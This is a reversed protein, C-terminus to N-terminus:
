NNIQSKVKALIDQNIKVEYKGELEKLWNKEVLDQYDSIVIGKTEELTKSAEPLVKNVKIIHYADNYFYIKSIGEKFIFTKPLAQHTATMIGSTFIVKQTNDQNLKNKIEEIKNGNNLMQQVKKIDKEKASTAVVADIRQEWKYNDKNADYYNQIGATDKKVANWIKTEMLDFLMLGERYENLIQAFEINENELNQEHYALINKNVFVKYKEDVIEQFSQNRKAEKQRKYLLNAFDNYTLLTDGIKLLPKEKAIDSPIRWARDYYNDNLISVFYSRAPNISSVNYQKKLKNQLSTNILKSRADLRVKNELDYKMDEFSAIPKKNYLKIIHWGYDSKFPKSVEGIKNLSFAVDEFASSSLQGSTFPALKGGKKASSKDDSFQKALSEFNEGQQILKYIEQIRVEPKVLTDKQNNSIMIHGVTVEGRSKRKDFVKVIHYGFQTRFPMSVEGINTNFAVSEFDYVMKFGSFYGLDEVLVTNGNHIEKKLSDFDENLLRERLKLLRNYTALTDKQLPNLRILIHKAKIDYSIREYAEKVLADTVEHDTLYNKALQKKYGNLERVYQPKKHFGLARAEALKLKYNIFLKLYEDIDKQSEDKVLDLNKNYVRLFESALVPTDGVTFLIDDNKIQANGFLVFFLIVCTTVIKIRM